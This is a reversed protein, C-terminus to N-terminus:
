FAWVAKISLRNRWREANPDGVIVYLEVGTGGGNRYAFYGNSNGNLAVFRGSISQTPSLEYSLTAITQRDSGSAVFVSQSIGLDLGRLLRWNAFLNTFTAKSGGQNGTQIFGGFQRFRNSPNVTVSMSYTNDVTDFFQMRTYNYGIGIESRLRLFGGLEAGRQQIEGRYTRYDVLFLNANANRITGKAFERYHETYSYMGRRDRWPIFGLPPDFDPRIFSYSLTSFMNPVEYSISATGASTFPKSEDRELAGNISFDFNGRRSFASAGFSDAKRLPTQFTSAFLGSAGNPGPNNSFRVVGVGQKGTYSTVLAGISTKENIRGFVKAGWDMNPIRQTYFLRGYGFGAGFGFFDQGETFFPRNEGIFRETRTFEIGAIQAEINRFDPNFSVLSTLQPTIGYRIDLGSRFDVKPKDYEPAVYALFQPSTRRKIEPPEVGEWIGMFERRGQQTLDAWQSELLTRAQSREFNIDMNRPGKGAPMNLMSWPIAMEVSYGDPLKLVGSKWDGRWERKSARGGDLEDTQTNLLNVHFENEGNYQRNGFPNITFSVADEGDFEAGPKIERGVMQAPVSEFCRIAVYINTADYAIRAETQDQIAIQGSKETFGTLITTGAWEAEDIRGDIVPPNALRVAPVRPSRGQALLLSPIGLVFISALPLRAFLTM